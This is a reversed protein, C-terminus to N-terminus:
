LVQILKIFRSSNENESTSANGFAELLVNADPIMSAFSTPATGSFFKLLNKTNETKGSGTVGRM